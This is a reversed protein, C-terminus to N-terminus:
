PLEVQRLFEAAEEPLVTNIAMGSGMEFGAPTTLRPLIQIHWMFYTQDEGGRPLTSIALNFDPNGLGLNLKQLVKKLLEALSRLRSPEVAGFSSQHAQPLIWIEFPVHSAFPLIAVYEDNTILVRDGANLEEDRM